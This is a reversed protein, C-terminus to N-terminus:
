IGKLSVNAIVYSPNEINIDFKRYVGILVLAETYAYEQDDIGSWFVPKANALKRFDRIANVRNADVVIQLDVKPISTKPTLKAKGFDDWVVESYNDMDSVPNWKITGLYFDLGSGFRGLEVVGSPDTLTLTIVPDPIAPIEFTVVTNTYLFPAIFYDYHDNVERNLMYGDLTFIPEGVGGATIKLDVISAKIGELMIANIRKGPRLVITMPSPSVSPTGQYWDFMRYRNTNSVKIWKPATAMVASNTTTPNNGLNGSVLSEYVLHSNASVVGVRAFEAYTTTSVWAPENDAPEVVTSSVLMSDTVDNPIFARM